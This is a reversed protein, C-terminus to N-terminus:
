TIDYSIGFENMSHILCSINHCIVKCLAENKQASFTKSKLMSGFKSKLMHFTTEINSRQNYSQLFETRHLNFYHFAKQWVSTAYDGKATANERFAIFPQIGHAEAYAFHSMASYAKDASIKEVNFNKRTAELVPIFHTNDHGFRDSVEVATIVNTRTGICCHIKVWDKKSMMKTDKYKAHQWTVTNSTGLGTSDIAFDTELSALPKATAEVLMELYPTLSTKEMYRCLSNYHPADNIYGKVKADIMDTTFRRASMQSYVKFIMAFIMDGLHLSPRGTANDSESIDRTLESLLGLFFAKESTQSKNYATWNQGYQPRRIDVVNTKEVLGQRIQVAYIHKCTQRNFTFDPCTCTHKQADVKYAIQGNSSRVHHFGKSLSFKNDKTSLEQGRTQRSNVNEM